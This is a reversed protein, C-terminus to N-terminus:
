RWGFVEDEVCEHEVAIMFWKIDFNSSTLLRVGGM